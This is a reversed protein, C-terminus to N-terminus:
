NEDKVNDPLEIKKGHENFESFEMKYSVASDGEGQSFHVKTIHSQSDLWVTYKGTSSKKVEEPDDVTEGDDEPYPQNFVNEATFSFKHESGENGEYTVRPESDLALLRDVFDPEAILPLFEASTVEWKGDVKTVADDSAVIMETKLNNDKNFITTRYSFDDGQKNFVTDTTYNVREGYSSDSYEGKERMSTVTVSKAVVDDFFSSWSVEGVAWKSFPKSEIQKGSDNSSSIEGLTKLASPSPSPSDSASPACGAVSCGLLALAIFSCAAVKKGM